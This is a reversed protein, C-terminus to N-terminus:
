RWEFRPIPEPEPIDGSTMRVGLEFAGRCDEPFVEAHRKAKAEKDFMSSEYKDYNDYQITDTSLLLECAGFFRGLMMKTKEFHKDYGIQELIKKPANMTYIMATNIRKSFLSRVEEDYKLYPFFLRELFARMSASETGFYVPTGLILSDADKVRDLVSTLDDQVACVGDHKRSIKKCSFCSICGSFNLDYLHVLETDAGVSMAGRLAHELLIVTNWKKKRPSGNFAMVKM